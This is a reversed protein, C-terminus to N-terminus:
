DCSYLYRGGPLMCAQGLRIRSWGMSHGVIRIEAQEPNFGKITAKGNINTNGKSVRNPNQASRVEYPLVLSDNGRFSGQVSLTFDRPPPPPLPPYLSRIAAKDGETLVPRPDGGRYVERRFGEYYAKRWESYMMISELDLPGLDAYERRQTAEREYFIDKLTRRDASGPKDMGELWKNMVGEDRIPFTSHFHEHGLGVCHTMEHMIVFTKSVEPFFIKQEPIRKYGMASVGSGMQVFTAYHEEAARPIFLPFGIQRNFDDISAHVSRAVADDKYPICRNPWPVVDNRRVSV